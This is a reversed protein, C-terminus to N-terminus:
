RRRMLRLRTQNGTHHFTVEDMMMVILALGRGSEPVTALDDGVELADPNIDELLFLPMPPSSDIIELIVETDSLTLEVGVLRASDETGHKVANSLAEVLALDVADRTDQDFGTTMLATISQALPSIAALDRPMTFSHLM